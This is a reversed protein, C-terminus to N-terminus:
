EGNKDLTEIIQAFTKIIQTFEELDKPKMKAIFPKWVSTSIYNNLVHTYDAYLPTRSVRLGQKKLKNDTSYEPVGDVLSGGAIVKAVAVKLRNLTTTNWGEKPHLLEYGPEGKKIRALKNNPNTLEIAKTTALGTRWDHTTYKEKPDLEKMYALIDKKYGIDPFVKDDPNQNKDKTIIRLNKILTRNTKTDSLTTKFLQGGKAIFELTLTKKDKDYNVHKKLLSRIGFSEVDGIKQHKEQSGIRFGTKYQIRCILAMAKRKPDKGKEIDYDIKKLMEPLDEDWEALKALKRKQARFIAGNNGVYRIVGEKGTAKQASTQPLRYIAQVEADPNRNIFVMNQDVGKPPYFFTPEGRHDLGALKHANEGSLTLKEWENFFKGQNEGGEEKQEGEWISGESQYGIDEAEPIYYFRGGRPGKQEKVGEPVKQGTKLYEKEGEQDPYEYTERGKPAEEGEHLVIKPRRIARRQLGEASATAKIRRGEPDIEDGWKKEILKSM